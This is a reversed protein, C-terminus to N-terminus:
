SEVEGNQVGRHDSHRGSTRDGPWRIAGIAWAAACRTEQDPDNMLELLDPVASNAVEGIRGLLYAARCRVDHDSHRLVTVLPPISVAPPMALLNRSSWHSWASRREGGRFMVLKSISGELDIRSLSEAAYERVLDDADELSKILTPVAAKATPGISGLTRVAAWRLEHSQAGLMRILEPVAANAGPGIAQLAEAAEKKVKPDADRLADKLSNAAPEARPGFRALASAAEARVQNDSDRLAAALAPVAAQEDHESWALALAANRRLRSNGDKLAGIFVRVSSSDKANIAQIAKAVEWDGYKLTAAVLAPLARSANQGFKALADAAHGRVYKDKDELAQILIPLAQDVGFQSLGEAAAWHVELDQDCLLRGLAPSSEPGFEALLKALRVRMERQSGYENAGKYHAVVAGIAEPKAKIEALALIAEIRINENTSDFAKAAVAKVIERCTRTVAPGLKRIVGLAYGQARDKGSNLIKILFQSLDAPQSKALGEVAAAAVEWDADELAEVLTSVAAGQPCCQAMAKVIWHRVYPDKEDFAAVLNPLAPLAAQDSQWLAL